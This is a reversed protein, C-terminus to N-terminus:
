RAIGNKNMFDSLFLQRRHSKRRVGISTDTALFEAFEKVTILDELDSTEERFYDQLLSQQEPTFYLVSNVGTQQHRVKGNSRGIYWDDPAAYKAPYLIRDQLYAIM